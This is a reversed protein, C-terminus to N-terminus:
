LGVGTLRSADALLSDDVVCGRRTAPTMPLIVLVFVTILLVLVFVTILLVFAFVTVASACSSRFAHSALPVPSRLLFGSTPVRGGLSIAVRYAAGM